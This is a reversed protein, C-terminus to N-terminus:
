KTRMLRKVDLSTPAPTYTKREGGIALFTGNAVLQDVLREAENAGPNYCGNNNDIVAQDRWWRKSRPKEAAHRLWSIIMWEEPTTPEPYSNEQLALLLKGDNFEVERRAVDVERGFAEFYRPSTHDEPDKRTLKWLVDPWDMIRSDGRSRQSAHGMHHVVLSSGVGADRLLENYANLFVGAEHNEDLGCADLAPRLCDLILYDTGTLMKGWHARITPDVINFTSLRGRLTVVRLREPHKLGLNKLWRRLMREDLEDDILTVTGTFTNLFEGLFEARDVLAKVLNTVMTTKGSKAQAALLANTGQPQLGQLLWTIPPDEIALFEDGPTPTPIQNITAGAKDADFERRAQDNVELRWKEKAVQAAFYEEASSEDDDETDGDTEDSAGDGTTPPTYNAIQEATMAGVAPVELGYTDDLVVQRPEADGIARPITNAIEKDGLGCARAAHCRDRICM